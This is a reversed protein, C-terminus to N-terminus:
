QFILHVINPEPGVRYSVFDWGLGKRSLIDDLVTRVSPHCASGVPIPDDANPASKAKMAPVGRSPSGESKRAKTRSVITKKSRKAM